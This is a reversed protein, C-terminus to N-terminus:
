DINKVTNLFEDILDSVSYYLASKVIKPATHSAYFENFM